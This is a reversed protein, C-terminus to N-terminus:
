TEEPGPWSFMKEQSKLFTLIQAPNRLALVVLPKAGRQFQLGWSNRVRSDLSLGWCNM